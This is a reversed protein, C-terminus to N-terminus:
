IERATVNYQSGIAQRLEIAISKDFKKSKLHCFVAFQIIALLIWYNEEFFPVPVCVCVYVCM